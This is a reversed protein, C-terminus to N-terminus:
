SEDSYDYFRYRAGFTVPDFPRTTANLYVLWTQVLGGLNQSPLALDPNGALAPNITHQLFADNQLNLGWAFNGNIRTRMPLNVSAALSLSHAMNGPPLSSQGTAPGGADGASCPAGNGFCPNDARIRTLDNEFVSLGYTLQVQYRPDSFAGRLRFDHVTQDIPQLVEYFNNGPSGFAMGMPKDGEKRIRSYEAVFDLSPTVSYSFRMAAKDWRVAIEDIDPASNHVPLAPRPTPLVFVGRQPQTALLRADTSIVHPTQDWLFDFQWTGLRGFSLYYDQDSFCWKSGGFEGFLSEDPRSLRLNAGLLFLGPSQDRYEEFKARDKQSPRSDLYFRGGAEIGGEVNVGGLQTQASAVGAASILLFAFVILQAATRERM